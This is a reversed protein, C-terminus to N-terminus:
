MPSRKRRIRPDDIKIQTRWDMTNNIEISGNPDILKQDIENCTITFPLQVNFREQKDLKFQIM